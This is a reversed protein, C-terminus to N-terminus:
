SKLADWRRFLRELASEANVLREHDEHHLVGTERPMRSVADALQDRAGTLQHYIKEHSARSPAAGIVTLKQAVTAIKRDWAHLKEELAPREAWHTRAPYSPNKWPSVPIPASM